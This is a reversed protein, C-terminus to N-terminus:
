EKSCKSYNPCTWNRCPTNDCEVECYKPCLDHGIMSMALFRVGLLRTRKFKVFILGFVLYVVNPLFIPVSVVLIMLLFASLLDITM